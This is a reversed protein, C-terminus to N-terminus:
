KHAAQKWKTRQKEGAPEKQDGRKGKRSYMRL